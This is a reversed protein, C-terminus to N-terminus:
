QKDLPKVSIGFFNKIRQVLYKIALDDNIDLLENISPVYSKFYVEVRIQLKDVNDRYSMMEALKPSYIKLIKYKRRQEYTAYMPYIARFAEASSWDFDVHKVNNIIYDESLIIKYAQDFVVEDNITVKMMQKYANVM